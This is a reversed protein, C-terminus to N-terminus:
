TGRSTGEAVHGGVMAPEFGVGIELSMEFEAEPLEGQYQKRKM